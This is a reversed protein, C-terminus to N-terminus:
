LTPVDPAAVHHSTAVGAQAVQVSLVEDTVVARSPVVVALLNVSSTLGTCVTGGGSLTLKPRPGAETSLVGVGVDIGGVDVVGVYVVVVDVVEVDIGGVDAVDVYVVGGVDVVRGDDVDIGGVRADVVGGVGGVGVGGIDGVSRVRSRGDAVDDLRGQCVHRCDTLNKFVHSLTVGADRM